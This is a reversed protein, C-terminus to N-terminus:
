SESEQSTESLYDTGEDKIKYTLSSYRNEFDYGKEQQRAKESWEIDMSKMSPTFLYDLGIAQVSLDVMYSNPHLYYSLDLFRGDAAQLRM